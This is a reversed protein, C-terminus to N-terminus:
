AGNLINLFFSVGRRACPVCSIFSTNVLLQVQEPTTSPTRTVPTTVGADAPAGAPAGSPSSSPTPAPTFQQKSVEERYPPTSPTYM